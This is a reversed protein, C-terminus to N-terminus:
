RKLSGDMIMWWKYQNTQPQFWWELIVPKSHPPLPNTPEEQTSITPGELMNTVGEIKNDLYSDNPRIIILRNPWWTFICCISGHQTDELPGVVLKCSDAEWICISCDKSSLYSAQWWTLICCVLSAWLTRWSTHSISVMQLDWIRVTNDGSGSVLHWGDPSFAISNVCCGTDKELCQNNFRNWHGLILITKDDSSSALHQGIQHSLLCFPCHWQTGWSSQHVSMKSDWITFLRTLHAQHLYADDPLFQCVPSWGCPGGFARCGNCRTEVDWICLTKDESGSVVRRGDQPSHLLTSVTETGMSSNGIMAGTEVDWIRVTQRSRRICHVPWQAYSCSVSNDRMVGSLSWPLELQCMGFVSQNKDDSSSVIYREDPTFSASWVLANHGVLTWWNLHRDGCGM